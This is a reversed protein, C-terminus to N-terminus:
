SDIMFCGGTKKIKIQAKAGVSAAVPLKEPYM